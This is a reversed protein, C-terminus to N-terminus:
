TSRRRRQRSVVVALVAVMVMVPALSAGTTETMVELLVSSSELQFDIEESRVRRRYSRNVSETELWDAEATSPLPEVM